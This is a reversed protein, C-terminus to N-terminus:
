TLVNYLLQLPTLNRIFRLLSSVLTVTIGTVRHTHAKQFFVAVFFAEHRRM